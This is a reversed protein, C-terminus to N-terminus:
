LAREALLALMAANHADQLVARASRHTRRSHASLLAHSHAHPHSLHTLYLADAPAPVTRHMHAERVSLPRRRHRGADLLERFGHHAGLVDPRASSVARVRCRPERESKRFLNCLSSELADLHM